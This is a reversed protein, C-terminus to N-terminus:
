ALRSFLSVPIIFGPVPQRIGQGHNTVTQMKEPAEKWQSANEALYGILQGYIHGNSTRHALMAPTGEKDKWWLYELKDRDTLFGGERVFFASDYERCKVEVIGILQDKFFVEFDHSVQHPETINEQYSILPGIFPTPKLMKEYIIKMVKRQNELDKSTEFM